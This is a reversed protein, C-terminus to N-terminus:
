VRQVDVLSVAPLRVVFRAGGGSADHVSITGDHSAVIAAAISLGLGAGGEASRAEDLTTFREFIRSRDATAIGPGDDSVELEVERGDLGRPQVSFAVTSSAFRAANSALNEVVRGLETDRGMVQGGSVRSIDIVLATTRELRRAEELVLEDLDVAHRTAVSSADAKTLALLEDVLDQLRWLKALAEDRVAAAERPDKPVTELLARLGAIPTRLEHSADSVFRRERAMAVDLRALLNNLTDALRDLEDGTGPLDIRHDLERDTMADVTRAMRGVPRLARGVVVWILVGLLATVGITTVVLLRSLTGRVETVNDAARAVVLTVDGSSPMAQSLVRLRGLDGAETTVIEPDAGPAAGSPSALAPAGIAADSAGMVAGDRSVFQVFLDAPGEEVPLGEGSALARDIFEANATLTDDIQATMERELVEIVLLGAGCVVAAVVVVAVATIRLRLSLRRRSRRANM